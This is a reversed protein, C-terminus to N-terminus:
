SRAVRERGIWARRGPVLDLEFWVVCGRRGRRFGWRDALANLLCLGRHRLEGQSHRRLLSLPDFGPGGDAVEVHLSRGDCEVALGFAEGAELEAHRLVNSVLENALLQAIFAVDPVRRPELLDAIIRRAEQAAAISAQLIVSIREKEPERPHLALTSM